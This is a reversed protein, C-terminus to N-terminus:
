DQKDDEEAGIIRYPLPTHQRSLPDLHQIAQHQRDPPLQRVKYESLREPELTAIHCKEIWRARAIIASHLITTLAERVTV